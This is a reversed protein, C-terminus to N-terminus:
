KAEVTRGAAAVRHPPPLPGAPSGEHDPTPELADVEAWPLEVSVRTGHGPRSDIRLTGGALRVRETMGILGFGKRGASAVDFGRGFDEVDLRMAGACRRLSVVARDSGSHKRANSLAEQVVRYITTQLSPPIAALDPEIRQEVGLGLGSCQVALDEIAEELGLDDLVPPRVGRIVRRGEEIGRALYGQVDDIVSAGANAPQDRLLSELLMRSGIVHQLLGDHIDHAIAQKEHEQADILNRLLREKQELAAYANRIDTIDLVTGIYHAFAGREDCVPQAITIAHRVTGDRAQIRYEIRCGSRDAFAKDWAELVHPLDAALIADGWGRGLTEAATRGSLRCWYENVYTCNGSADTRFIGAPCKEAIARFEERGLRLEGEAKRRSTIERELRDIQRTRQESAWIMVLGLVVSIGLSIQYQLDSVVFQGRPPFFLYRFTIVGAALGLLAQRPGYRRGILYVAPFVFLMSQSTGLVPDILWRLLVFPALIGLTGLSRALFASAAHM